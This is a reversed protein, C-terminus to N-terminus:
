RLITAKKVLESDIYIVFEATLYLSKKREWYYYSDALTINKISYSNDYRPM